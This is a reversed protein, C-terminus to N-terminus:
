THEVFIYLAVEKILEMEAFSGHSKTFLSNMIELQFSFADVIEAVSQIQGKLM